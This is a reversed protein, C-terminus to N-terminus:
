SFRQHCYPNSCCEEFFIPIKLKSTRLGKQLLEIIRGKLFRASLLRSRLDKASSSNTKKKFSTQANGKQRSHFFRVNRLWIDSKIRNSILTLLGSTFDSKKEFGQDCCPSSPSARIAGLTALLLGQAAPNALLLGLSMLPQESLRRHFCSNSPSAKTVGPTALFLGQSVLLLATSLLTTPLLGPSVFPQKSFNSHRQSQSSPLGPSACFFGLVLGSCAWSYDLALGSCAWTLVM